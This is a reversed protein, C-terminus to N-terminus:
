IVYQTRSCLFHFVRMLVFCREDLWGCVFVHLVFLQGILLIPINSGILLQNTGGM